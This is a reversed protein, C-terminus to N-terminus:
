FHARVEGQLKIFNNYRADDLFILTTNLSLSRGFLMSGTLNVRITQNNSLGKLAEPPMSEFGNAKIYDVQGEIRGLKGIFQLWNIKLGFANVNNTEKDEILVKDSYYIIKSEWQILATQIEKIGFETTYGNITRKTIWNAESSVNSKHVDGSFIFYKQDKLLYQMELGLENEFREDWGRPDMATLNLSNQLWFRYRNSDRKKQHMLEHRLYRRHFQINNKKDNFLLDISKGHYDLRNLLRYKFDKLNEFKWKSFDFSLRNLGDMLFGSKYNGTFVTHAVYAGNEDRIYENLLNDYRYYGLGVGVSDYIIARSENIGHKANLVFDIKLPSNKKRYNLTSRLSSFDNIIEGMKDEQIRQRVMFGYLWGTRKLSNFDLQIIKGVKTKAFKSSDSSIASKDERQGLGISLFHNNKTYDVGIMIDDFRYAKERREHVLTVFPKLPGKSFSIHGDFEQFKINSNVQNWRIKAKNIFEGSYNFDIESRKKIQGGQNFNSLNMDGNIINDVAFSTKMSSLSESTNKDTTIDWSENFDVEKDRSLSRFKEGNRWHAFDIGLKIRGLKISDQKLKLQFANGNLKSNNQISYTNNEFISLAGETSISLNPRLAIKSEFQLLQNSSPPRIQRGPSYRQIDDLEELIIFEYYIRNQSSIKRIYNGSPDLTFIVNYRNPSPILVDNYKYIGNILQYKGLSDAIVGSKYITNNTKFTNKQSNTLYSSSVNDREDIYTINYFAKEAIDSGISAQIFNRKYDSESYQYEIDIDSDFFILNKSTFTLEGASYDITYDQDQGRNLHIGNLWVRETGSSIIVNRLGSKSTLFYPGQNGDKGKIELRNYKGKSQGFVTKLSLKNQKYSNSVGVINRKNNNYKGSTNVVTIDGATLLNNPHSVHLYVKDIEELSATTGDAQIPISEDTINGSVRIKESLKGAIQLRLGGNLTGTGQSSMEIGRFFSGSANIPYINTNSPSIINKKLRIDLTDKNLVILSDLRPLNDIIPGIQNPLKFNTTDKQGLGLSLSVLWFIAIKITLSIM